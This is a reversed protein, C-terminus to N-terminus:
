LILRVMKHFCLAKALYVNTKSNTMFTNFNCTYMASLLLPRSALTPSLVEDALPLFFGSEFLSVDAVCTPTTGIKYTVGGSYEL